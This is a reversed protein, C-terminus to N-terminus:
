PMLAEDAIEVYAKEALEKLWAQMEGNFKREYVRLFAKKSPEMQEEEGDDVDEVMVLHYGLRSKIISSVGGVGLEFAAHDLEPMLQGREIWGLRGGNPANPDDSYIKALEHFSEGAKLRAEVEQIRSLAEPEPRENSVRILLHAVAVRQYDRATGLAELAQAIEQPTVRIRPRIVEDIVRQSLLQNRVQRRLQELTLQREDLWAQFAQESQLRQQLERVKLTVEDNSVKVKAEEAQQVVLQQDILQKLAARYAEPPLGELPIDRGMAEVLERVRVVLDTRTIVDENVVAVIGDSIAQCPSPGSSLVLALAFGWKWENVSRKM